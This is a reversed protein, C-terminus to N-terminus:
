ARRVLGFVAAAAVAIATAALFLPRFDTANPDILWLALLPAVLQPLTNALNAIGIGAGASRRNPLVETLLAIDIAQSVGQGIGLLIFAAVAGCWGPATAFVLMAMAIMISAGCAFPKRRQVRDSLWGAVLGAALQVATNIAMLAAFTTVVPAGFPGVGLTRLHFVMDLLGLNVALLGFLRGIAVLAFDNAVPAIELPQAPHAIALRRPERLSLVFPCTAATVISAILMLQATISGGISVVAAGILAAAPYGLGILGAIRGRQDIPVMDALLASLPTLLMNITVQFLLIAGILGTVSSARDFLVYSIMIGVIGGLMWPRRRGFRGPTRDSAAGFVIGAVSAAIAGYLSLQALTAARTAPEILEVKLPVLVSLLPVFALNAGIHVFTLAAIFRGGPPPVGQTALVERRDDAMPALAIM